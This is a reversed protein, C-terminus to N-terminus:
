KLLRQDLSFKGHSEPTIKKFNPHDPNLLVNIEQQVIISPVTIALSSNAKIWFDGHSKTDAHKSLDGTFSNHVILDDPIDVSFLNLPPMLDSDAHVLIELVALSISSACYVMKTNKSNWRGGYKSAGNGNFAEAITAAKTLRWVKM